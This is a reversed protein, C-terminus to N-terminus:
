AALVPLSRGASVRIVGGGLVKDEDYVVLSQGPAISAVPEDLAIELEDATIRAVTGPALPSRHRIRVSVRAGEAPEDALWNLGGAVVSSGLLEERPGIVVARDEPRIAIVYM